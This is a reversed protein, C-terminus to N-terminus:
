QIQDKISLTENLKREYARAKNDARKIAPRLPKRFQRWPHSPKPIPKM